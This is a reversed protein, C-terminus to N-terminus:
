FETMPPLTTFWTFSKKPAKDNKFKKQNAIERETMPPLQKTKAVWPAWFNFPKRPETTMDIVEPTGVIVHYYEATEHYPKEVKEAKKPINAAM